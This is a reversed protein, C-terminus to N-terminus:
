RSKAQVSTYAKELDEALKAWSLKEAMQQASVGLEDWADPSRILEITQRAFDDDDGPSCLLGCRSERVIRGIEGIDGTVIPRGSSLYDGLRIPFRAKESVESYTKLLLIDSACLYTKVYHLPIRGTYVIGTGAAKVLKRLNYKPPEGVVFLIASPFEDVISNWLHSLDAFGVHCLIPGAATIGLMKRANVKSMKTTEDPEVGNPLFYVNRAGLNEGRLRLYESAVTLGDALHLFKQELFGGLTRVFWGYDVLIGGDGWLDDWDFFIRQHPRVVALLHAFAAATWALPMALQFIHIVDSSRVAQSICNSIASVAQIPLWTLLNDSYPLTFM